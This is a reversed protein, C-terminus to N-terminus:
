AGKQGSSRHIAVIILTIVTAPVALCDTSRHTGRDQNEM